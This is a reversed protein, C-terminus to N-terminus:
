SSSNSAVQSTQREQSDAAAKVEAEKLLEHFEKHREHSEEPNSRRTEEKELLERPTMGDWVPFRALADAGEELLLKLCGLKGYRAAYHLPTGYRPHATNVDIGKRLVWRMRDETNGVRPAMLAFLHQPLVEAGSSVLFECVELKGTFLAAELPTYDRLRHWDRFQRALNPDAGHQLLLKACEVNTCSRPTDTLPSPPLM